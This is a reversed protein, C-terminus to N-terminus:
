AKTLYTRLYMYYLGGAGVNVCRVRVEECLTFM